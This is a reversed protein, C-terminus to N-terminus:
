KYCEILLIGNKKQALKKHTSMGVGPHRRKSSDVEIYVLIYDEIGQM